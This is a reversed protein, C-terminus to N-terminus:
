QSATREKQDIYDTRHLSIERNDHHYTNELVEIRSILGMVTRNAKPPFRLYCAIIITKAAIRIKNHRYFHELVHRDRDCCVVLENSPNITVTAKSNAASATFGVPSVVNARYPADFSRLAAFIAASLKSRCLVELRSKHKTFRGFAISPEREGTAGSIIDRDHSNSFGYRM